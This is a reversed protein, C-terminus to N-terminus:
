VHTVELVISISIKESLYTNHIYTPTKIINHIAKLHVFYIFLFDAYVTVIYGIVDFVTMKVTNIVTHCCVLM